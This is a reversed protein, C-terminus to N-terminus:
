KQIKKLKEDIRKVLPEPLKAYHMSENYKQGDHTAWTIFDVLAKGTQPNQETYLVAWTTGSIPYSDEGEADTLSFRLDNPIDKLSNEAAKSVSTLDALIFKGAKNKVAGFKIEDKKLLAYYLEIYGISGPNNSIFGAVGPNGKEGVGEPWKVDTNVGVKEKWEPSVKSLYETFIFTSGSGESRHVVSIKQNPLEVTPNLVKLAPDNWKKIKGLFIEALVQGSFNLPKDIDKLNYTPVIAGMVLPLHMTEGGRKKATEMQEPTMFADTCGFDVAQETMQKIGATSGGGQYNIELGGKEKTYEEVWKDMIPKIFTSGSGSLKKSSGSGCGGSSTLFLLALILILGKSIHGV